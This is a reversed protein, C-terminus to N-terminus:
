HGLIKRLTDSRSRIMEIECNLQGEIGSMGGMALAAHWTCNQQMFHRFSKESAQYSQLADDRLSAQDLEIMQQKVLKKLSTYKVKLIERQKTLCAITPKQCSEETQAAKVNLSLLSLIFFLLHVKNFFAFHFTM